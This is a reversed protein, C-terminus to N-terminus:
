KEIKFKSTDRVFEAQEVWQRTDHRRGKITVIDGEVEVFLSESNPGEIPQNAENYPRFVSSSGVMAFGEEKYLDKSILEFHTHGSFYIVEPYKELLQRLEQHQVVGMDYWSGAITAPLQQHLFVFIPKPHEADRKEALKDELWSLQAESLYADEMSEPDKDRYQEGGLFIFHYGNVWADRYVQELKMSAKFLDVAQESTWGNPFTDASWNRDKDYWMKYFEHNGITAYVPPLEYEGMIGNLTQYDEEFGDTLDGNIVMLDQKEMTQYDDLAARFKDQSEKDWAQVHIDSMVAFRIPGVEKQAFGPLSCGQFFVAMGLFHIATLAKAISSQRM